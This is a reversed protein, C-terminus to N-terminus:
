KLPLAALTRWAFSNPIDCVFLFRFKHAALVKIVTPAVGLLEPFGSSQVVLSFTKVFPFIVVEFERAILCITHTGCSMVLIRFRHCSM